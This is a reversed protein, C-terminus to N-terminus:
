FVRLAIKMECRRSSEKGVGLCSKGLVGISRVLGEERIRCKMKWEREM